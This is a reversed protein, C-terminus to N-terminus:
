MLGAAIAVPIIAAAAATAAGVVVVAVVAAASAFAAALLLPPLRLQAHLQLLLAAVTATAATNYPEASGICLKCPMSDDTLAGSCQM